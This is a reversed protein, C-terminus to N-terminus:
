NNPRWSPLLQDLKEARAPYLMGKKFAHRQVALWKGLAYEDPPSSAGMAPPRGHTRIHELVQHLRANWRQTDGSRRNRWQPLANDLKAARETHRRDTAATRAASQRHLWAALARENADTAAASPWRNHAARFAVARALMQDWSPRVRYPSSWGPMSANLKSVREPLLLGSKLSAKQNRFWANLSREARNEAYQSPVRQHDRTFRLYDELHQDWDQGASLTRRPAAPPPDNTEKLPM